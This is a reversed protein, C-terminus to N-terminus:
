LFPSKPVVTPFAKFIPVHQGLCFPVKAVEGSTSSQAPHALFWDPCLQSPRRPDGEALCNLAWINGGLRAKVSDPSNATLIEVVDALGASTAHGQAPAYPHQPSDKEVLHRVAIGM